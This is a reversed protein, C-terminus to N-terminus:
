RSASTYCGFLSIVKDRLILERVKETYVSFDSKADVIVPEIMHGAVGGSANIEDIAYQMVLTSDEEPVALGGTLSFLLGVKIPEGEKLTAGWADRATPLWLAPAALAGSSMATSKLFKRRTWSM